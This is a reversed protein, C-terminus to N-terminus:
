FSVKLKDGLDEISYNGPEISYEGSFRLKELIEEPIKFAEEVKFDGDFYLSQTDQTMSEKLFEVILKNGEFYTEGNASGPKPAYILPEWLIFICFGFGKCDKKPRGFEFHVTVKYKVYEPNGEDLDVVPSAISTTWMIMVLATLLITLHKKM